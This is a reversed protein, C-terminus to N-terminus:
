CVIFAANSLQPGAAHKALAPQNALAAARVLTICTWMRVVRPM